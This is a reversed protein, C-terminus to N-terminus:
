NKDDPLRHVSAIQLVPGREVTLSGVMFRQIMQRQRNQTVATIAASVVDPACGVTSVVAAGLSTTGVSVGTVEAACGVSVVAEDSVGSFVVLAADAASGM